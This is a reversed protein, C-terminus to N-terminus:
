KRGRRYRRREWTNPERATIVRVRHNRLTYVVALLRGTETTGIAVFRREVAVPSPYVYRSPDLLAEEAESPEVEHLSVHELNEDDGDFDSGAGSM